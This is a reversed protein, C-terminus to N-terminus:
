VVKITVILMINTKLHWNSLNEFLRIITMGEHVTSCFLISKRRTENSLEQKIAKWLLGDFDGAEDAEGADQSYVIKILMEIAFM